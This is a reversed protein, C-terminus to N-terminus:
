GHYNDNKKGKMDDRATVICEVMKLLISMIIEFSILQIIKLWKGMKINWSDM